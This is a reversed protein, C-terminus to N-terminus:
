GSNEAKDLGCFCGLKIHLKSWTTSNCVTCGHAAWKDQFLRKKAAKSEPLPCIIIGARIALVQVSPTSKRLM